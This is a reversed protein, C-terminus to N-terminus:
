KGFGEEWLEIARLAAAAIEQCEYGDRSVHEDAIRELAETQARIVRAAQPGDPNVPKGNAPWTRELRGAIGAPENKDMSM